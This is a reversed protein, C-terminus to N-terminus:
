GMERMNGPSFVRSARRRVGRGVTFPHVKQFRQCKPIDQQVRHPRASEWLYGDLAIMVVTASVRTASLAAATVTTAAAAPAPLQRPRLAGTTDDDGLERM